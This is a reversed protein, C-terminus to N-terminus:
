KQPAGNDDRSAPFRTKELSEIQTVRGEHVIIQVSGFRLGTVNRRVVDLWDAEPPPTVPPRENTKTNM